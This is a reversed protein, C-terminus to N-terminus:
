FDKKLIKGLINRFSEWEAQTNFIHKPFILFLVDNSYVIILKKNEKWKIFKNWPIKTDTFESKLHLTEDTITTTTFINKSNEQNYIKKIKKPMLFYFYFIIYIGPLLFYLFFTDHEKCLDIFAFVATVCFLMLLVIGTYKLFPRPRMNLYHAKLYDKFTINHELQIM